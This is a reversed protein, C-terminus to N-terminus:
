LDCRIKRRRCRLCARYSRKGTSATMNTNNVRYYTPSHDFSTVPACPIFIQLLRSYVAVTGPNLGCKPVM